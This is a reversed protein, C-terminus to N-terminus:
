KVGRLVRAGSRTKKFSEWIEPMEKKLREADLVETGQNTKYTLIPNGNVTAFEADGVLEVIKARLSKRAEDAREAEEKAFSFETWLEELSSGGEFSKGTTHRPYRASLASETAASGDTEPSVKTQILDWFQSEAIVLNEAIEEDWEMERVQLGHGGVLAAFTIKNIGTVVGYHYGQLMYTQPVQNNAWAAPNGPSAIGATKVELIGIINPPPEEFRWKQVKGAPFEDSPEVILFDLNAFMFNNKESWIIVEWEVVAKNYDEAYGEAVIRELRHGWKTAENGTFTTEVIGTKETWLAYPSKYRNVGCVTGADSGGIGGKRIELWETETKDWVPIVRVNKM